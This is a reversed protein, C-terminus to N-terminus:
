EDRRARWSGLEGGILSGHYKPSKCLSERTREENQHKHDASHVMHLQLDRAPAARWKSEFVGLQSELDCDGMLTCTVSLMKRQDM